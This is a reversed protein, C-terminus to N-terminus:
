VVSKRDSAHGRIKQADEVDYACLGRGIEIGDPGRVVVADDVVMVRITDRPTAATPPTASLAVSM